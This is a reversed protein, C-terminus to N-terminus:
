RNEHLWVRTILGDKVEYVALANLNIDPLYEHYAAFAGTRTKGKIDARRGPNAKFMAGYVARMEEHGRMVPADGKASNYILADKAYTALFGDIDGANYTEIQRDIVAEVDSMEAGSEQQDNEM